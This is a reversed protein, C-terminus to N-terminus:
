ANERVAEPAVGQWVPLVIRFCAGPLAGATLELRGNLKGVIKHSINLGLGLGQSDPTGDPEARVFKDFIKKRFLPPIGSGNDSIDVVYGEQTVRSSIHVV